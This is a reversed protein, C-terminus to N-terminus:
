VQWIINSLFSSFSAVPTSIDLRAVSFSKMAKFVPTSLSSM